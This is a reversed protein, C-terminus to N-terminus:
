ASTPPKPRSAALVDKGGIMLETTGSVIRFGCFRCIKADKRIPEACRPCPMTASAENAAASRKAKSFPKLLARLLRSPM